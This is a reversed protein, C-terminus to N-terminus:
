YVPQNQDQSVKDGLQFAEMQAPTPCLFAAAGDAVFGHGATVWLGACWYSVLCQLDM